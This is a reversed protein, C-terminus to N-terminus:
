NLVTMTMTTSVGKQNRITNIKEHLERANAAQIDVLLDYGGTVFNTSRVGELNKIKEVIDKGPAKTGLKVMIIARMDYMMEKAEITFREIVRNEVLSRMRKRVAGETVGLEKAIDTFSARSNERLIDLMKRARDDPVFRM